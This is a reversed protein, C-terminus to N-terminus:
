RSAGATAAVPHPQANAPAKAPQGGGRLPAEPL